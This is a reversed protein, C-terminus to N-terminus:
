IYDAVLEVNTINIKYYDDVRTGGAEWCGDPDIHIKNNYMRGVCKFAQEWHGLGIEIRLDNNLIGVPVYKPM